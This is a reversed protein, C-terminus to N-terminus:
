TPVGTRGDLAPELDQPHHVFLIKNFIVFKLIWLIAFALFSAFTVVFTRLAHSAHHALSEAFASAGTSAALGIAAMVWFPIVERTM